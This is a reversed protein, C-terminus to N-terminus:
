QTNIGVRGDKDRQLSLPMDLIPVTVKAWTWKIGFFFFFLTHFLYKNKYM